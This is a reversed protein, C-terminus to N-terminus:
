DTCHQIGQAERKKGKERAEADEPVFQTVLDSAGKSMPCSPSGTRIVELGSFRLLKQVSKPSRRNYFTTCELGPVTSSDYQNGLTTGNSAM